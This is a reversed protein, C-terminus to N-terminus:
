RQCKRRPALKGRRRRRGDKLLGTDIEYIEVLQRNLGIEAMNAMERVRDEISSLGLFV